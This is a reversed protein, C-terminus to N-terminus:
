FERMSFPHRRRYFKKVIIAPRARYVAQVVETAGEKAEQVEETVGEKAEQVEETEGVKAEQAEHCNQNQEELCTRKLPEFSMQLGSCVAPEKCYHQNAKSEHVALSSEHTIVPQIKRSTSCGQTVECQSSSKPTEEASLVRIVQGINLNKEQM